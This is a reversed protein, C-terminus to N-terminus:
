SDVDPQHTDKKLKKWAMRMLVDEMIEKILRNENRKEDTFVRRNRERWLAYVTAALALKQKFQFARMPITALLDLMDDWKSPASMWDVNIRIQNWVSSSFQCEFFLHNHSDMCVGCLGCKWDPPDHKWNMMRDQTPHRKYCAIWLCFAHKPIHGSFWVFKSWPVVQHVGDFSAYACSVSFSGPKGYVDVWQVSDPQESLTPLVEGECGPHYGFDAAEQICRKFIMSFGEMILTFLYPSLPDGQRIGREGKFFGRQEGNIMVSYSTTTVLEKIWKILVHHFGFGELMRILFGWDVM